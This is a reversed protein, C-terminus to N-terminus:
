DVITIEPEFPEGKVFEEYQAPLRALVEHGNPEWTEVEFGTRDELPLTMIDIMSKGFGVPPQGHPDELEECVCHLRANLVKGKPNIYRVKLM